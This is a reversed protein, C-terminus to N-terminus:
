YSLRSKHCVDCFVLSKLRPYNVLVDSAVKLSINKFDEELGLQNEYEELVM